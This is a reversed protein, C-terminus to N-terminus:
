LKNIENTIIGKEKHRKKYNEGRYEPVTEQLKQRMRRVSEPSTLVGKSFLILFEKASIDKDELESNWINSILANDNDRLRPYNKLLKEVKPKIGKM